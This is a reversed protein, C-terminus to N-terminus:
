LMDRGGDGGDHDVGIVSTVILELVGAFQLYRQGSWSMELLLIFGVDGCWVRDVVGGKIEGKGEAKVPFWTM